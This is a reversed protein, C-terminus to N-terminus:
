AARLARAFAKRDGSRAISNLNQAVGNAQRPTEMVGSVPRGTDDDVVEYGDITPAYSFHAAIAATPMEAREPDLHYNPPTM